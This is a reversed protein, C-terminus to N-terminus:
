SFGKKVCDSTLALEQATLLFHLVLGDVPMSQVWQYM